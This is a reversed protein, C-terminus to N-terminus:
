QAVQRRRIQAETPSGTRGSMVMSVINQLDATTFGYEAAENITVYLLQIITDLYSAGGEDLKKLCAVIYRQVDAASLTAPAGHFTTRRPDPM